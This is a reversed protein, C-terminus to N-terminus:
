TLPWKKLSQLSSVSETLHGIIDVCKWLPSKQRSSLLLFPFHFSLLFPSFPTLVHLLYYGYLHFHFCSYFFEVIDFKVDYSKKLFKKSLRHPLVLYMTQGFLLSLSKITFCITESVNNKLCVMYRRLSRRNQVFDQKTVCARFTCNEVWTYRVCLSLIWFLVHFTSNRM